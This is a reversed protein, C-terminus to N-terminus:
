TIIAQWIFSVMRYNGPVLEDGPQRYFECRVIGTTIVEAPHWDAPYRTSMVVIRDAMAM